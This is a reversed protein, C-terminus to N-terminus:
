GRSTVGPVAPPPSVARGTIREAVLRMWHWREGPAWLTLPLQELRQRARGDTDEVRELRGAVVVSWGTHLERDLGDIEFCAPARPGQDLKTGAATRFVVDDGDLAYNIPVIVPANGSIVALRGVVDQALLELCADRDLIEIGTRDVTRM